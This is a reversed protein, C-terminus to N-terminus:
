PAIVWQPDNILTGDNGTGSSDAATNGSGEEFYWLGVLGSEDNFIRNCHEQVETSSLARNYIRVEDIIGDFEYPTSSTDLPDGGITLPKDNTFIPSELVPPYSCCPPEPCGNVCLCGIIADNEDSRLKGDVYLEISSTAMDYLGVVHYWEDLQPLDYLVLAVGSADCSETQVFFYVRTQDSRAAM